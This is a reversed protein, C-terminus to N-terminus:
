EVLVFGAWQYPNIFREKMEQQTSRFADPISMKGEIWHKYFADMFISTEQDPVQWLSMILYKAGAIKFARQLGYVGENGQIDGLGTECASLVVLETNSLNIQSIEYATLIGDELEPQFPKSTQWAYNGGALILGSRIMPHESIKFSPEDQIANTFETKPDTKPDPFFFGHTAIHLVRPSPKRRGISKFSEETALYGKLVNTKFGSGTLTTAVKDVEKNTWKLYDWSGGRNTSDSYSFSLEGRTGALDYTYDTNASAIASSDMDYQIGGYLLADQDAINIKTPIVLQRTSGLEILRYRDALTEEDSLPIAGLNLRHLLGAPSFYITNVGVLEQELPQWTLDYLSKQPQEVPQVGREAMTYLNNVYDAKRQGSSQLLSDLQKEEFLPIFQPQKYGPRLLLAAYMISDSTQNKLYNYQVFEFAVEDANLMMQVDEWYVRRNAEDWGAVNRTLDKEIETAADKIQAIINSDREAIPKSYQTALQNLYAQLRYYKESIISDSLALQKVRGSSQLLLGKYFLCSNYCTKALKGSGADQSFSLLHNETKSFVKIYNNLEQETLYYMGKEIHRVNFASLDTFYSEAKDYQNTKWYFLAVNILNYLYSLNEKGQIKERLSIAKLFLPEAKQNQNLSSYLNALNDLCTPYYPHNTNKIHNEFLDKAEIFYQMAHDYRGSKWYLGGLNVLSGAFEPTNRGVLKEWITKSEVYLSEAQEYEGTKELLIALGNLNSAYRIHEKGYVQETIAISEAYLSKAKEYQGLKNYLSALTSLSISYQPHQKGLTKNLIDIAELYYSEAKEYEGTHKYLDAM